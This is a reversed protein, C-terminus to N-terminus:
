EEEPNEQNAKAEQEQQYKGDLQAAYILGGVSFLVLSSIIFGIVFLLGNSM